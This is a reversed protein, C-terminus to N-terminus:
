LYITPGYVLINRDNDIVFALDMQIDESTISSKLIRIPIKPTLDYNKTDNYTFLFTGLIHISDNALTIVDQINHIFNTQLRLQNIQAINDYSIIFLYLEESNLSHKFWNSSIYQGIYDNLIFNQTIITFTSNTFIGLCYKIPM